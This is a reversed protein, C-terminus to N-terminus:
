KVWTEYADWALRYSLERGIGVVRLPVAEATGYFGVGLAEEM